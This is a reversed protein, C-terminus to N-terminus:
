IKSTRARETSRLIIKNHVEMMLELPTIRSPAEVILLTTRERAHKGKRKAIKALNTFRASSHPLNPRKRKEVFKPSQVSTPLTAAEKGIPSKPLQIRRSDSPCTIPDQSASNDSAVTAPTTIEAAPRAWPVTKKMKGM